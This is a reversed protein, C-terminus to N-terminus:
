RGNDTESGGLFLVKGPVVQILQQRAVPQDQERVLEHYGLLSRPEHHTTNVLATIEPDGQEEAACRHLENLRDLM